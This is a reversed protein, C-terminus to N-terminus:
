LCQVRAFRQKKRLRHHLQRLFLEAGRVSVQGILEPLLLSAAKKMFCPDPYKVM